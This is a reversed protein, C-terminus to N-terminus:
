KIITYLKNESLTPTEVSLHVGKQQTISLLQRLM